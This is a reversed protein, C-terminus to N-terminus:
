LNLLKIKARTKPGFNGTAPINNMRKWEML